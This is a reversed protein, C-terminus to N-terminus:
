GGVLREAGSERFRVAQDDAGRQGRRLNRPNAGRSAWPMSWRSRTWIFWTERQPRRELPEMQGPRSSARLLHSETFARGIRNMVEYGAVVAAILEKGSSGEREATALAAPVVVAGPHHIAPIYVDDAEFAHAM